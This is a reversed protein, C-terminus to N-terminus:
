VEKTEEYPCAMQDRLHPRHDYYWLLSKLEEVLFRKTGWFCEWPLAFPTDEVLLRLESVDDETLDRVFLNKQIAIFTM